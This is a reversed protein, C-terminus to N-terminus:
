YVVLIFIIGNFREALRWSSVRGGKEKEEEFEEGSDEGDILTTKLRAAVFLPYFDTLKKSIHHVPSSRTPRRRRGGKGNTSTAM